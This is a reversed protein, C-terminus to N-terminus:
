VIHPSRRECCSRTELHERIRKRETSEVRGVADNFLARFLRPLRISELFMHLIVPKYVNLQFERHAAFAAAPRQRVSCPWGAVAGRVPLPKIKGPMISSGPEIRRFDEAVRLRGPVCAYWGCANAVEDLAWGVHAALASVIVL